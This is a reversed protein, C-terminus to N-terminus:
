SKQLEAVNLKIGLGMTSAISVKKVFNGKIGEPRNKAITNFFVKINEILKNKEFSVKGVGAHIIGSKDNKYQIQGQKAEKVAAATDKTVTGLKPNPMLGKPGLIQGLKGVEPMMEPTSILRDFNIEGKQINSLLDKDGVLDAGSKKAEEAENDKAIVAVRLKKGVGNPLSIVGRIAQDPKDVNLNLNIAMEITEDFKTKSTNKIVDLAEDLTYSKELDVEKLIKKRNKSLKSIM